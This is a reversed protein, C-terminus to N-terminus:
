RSLVDFRGEFKVTEATLNQVTIWYTCQDASAREVAVQWTLQPGGGPCPTLPMVTWVVHWRATWGFTFWRRSANPGISGLWQVGPGRTMCNLYPPPGDPEATRLLLENRYTALVDNSKAYTPDLRDPAYFNHFIEPGTHTITAGPANQAAVWTAQPIPEDFLSPDIVYSSAGSATSVELTPAVHWGWRVQCSPHNRSAVRLAGSIWIKRPQAGAGIMLRCMEHARGWCGDDPYHFPICPATPNGPCCVKANVLDFLERSRQLSIPM